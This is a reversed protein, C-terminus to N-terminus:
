VRRQASMQPFYETPQSLLLLASDLVPMQHRIVHMHHSEIWGFYAHRLYDSVDLPFTRNVQCPDVFPPLAIENPLVEAGPPVKDRRDALIPRHNPFVNTGPFVFVFSQIM